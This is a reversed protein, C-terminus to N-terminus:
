RGDGRLDGEGDEDSCEEEESQKADELYAIGAGRYLEHQQRTIRLQSRYRRQERHAYNERMYQKPYQSLEYGGVNDHALRSGDRLPM